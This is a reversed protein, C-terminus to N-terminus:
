HAGRRPPQWEPPRREVFARPGEFFDPHTWHEQVMQWGHELAAEYPMELSSWIAQMSRAVAEPSNQAIDQAISMATSMLSDPSALEDVLGLEYARRAPLRFQKGQLTMRLATGLPARRALGINEVAGVMGVNVHSDLFSATEAAVVIDSDVVFHLGGGAVLGNVACVTPKWVANQRSTWFLADRLPGPGANTTGTRAVSEVDTGTCFYAGSGTIVTALVNTDDKIWAWIKRMEAHMPPTLANGRQPRDLTLLVVAGHQEVILGEVGLHGPGSM